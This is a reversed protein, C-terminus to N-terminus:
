AGHLVRVHSPQAAPHRGAAKGCRWAVDELHEVDRRLLLLSATIGALEGVIALGVHGYPRGDTDGTVLHEVPTALQAVRRALEELQRELAGRSGALVMSNLAPDDTVDTM